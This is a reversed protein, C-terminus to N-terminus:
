KLLNSIQSSTLNLFEDPRISKNDIYFGDKGPWPKGLIIEDYPVKNEALWTKIIPLTNKRILHINGGFTQM